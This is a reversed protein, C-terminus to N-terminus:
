GPKSDSPPKAVPIVPIDPAVLRLVLVRGGAYRVEHLQEVDALATGPAM